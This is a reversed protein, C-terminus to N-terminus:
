AENLKMGRNSLKTEELDKAAEGRRTQEINDCDIFETGTEEAL